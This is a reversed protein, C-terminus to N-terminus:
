LLVVFWTLVVALSRVAVEIRAGHCASFSLWQVVTTHTVLLEAGFCIEIRMDFVMGVTARCLKNTWHAIPREFIRKRKFVVLDLVSV